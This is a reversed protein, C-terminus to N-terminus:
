AQAGVAARWAGIGRRVPPLIIALAVVAACLSVTGIAPQLAQEGDYLRSALLPVLAPGLGIGILATASLSLAIATARMENPVSEQLVVHGIVYAGVSGLAWIGFALAEFEPGTALLFALAGLIALAYCPLLMAARSATGGRRAVWDSLGGGAVSALVGSVTIAVGVLAGAQAPTSGHSRQLLTPLWAIMAYDGIGLVAKVLCLRLAVADNQFLRDVVASLALLGTRHRRVPESISLVFPLLVLGPVGLAILLQRWPAYAGVVPIERFWGGEIWALLLGGAYLAAGSGLTAGIAFVGLALGRRRSPFSDIILSSAAPILAAEGLGVALRAALFSWFGSALGCGITAASWLAIGVAILNRRNVADALRGCPPGALAFLLAFGAGQLLGVGLDTLGLEARVPDVILNIVLRDAFSLILAACLVGVAYWGTPATPADALMDPETM